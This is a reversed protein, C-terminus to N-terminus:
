EDEDDENDEVYEICEIVPPSILRITNKAGCHDCEVIDGVVDTAIRSPVDDISYVKMFCEDAKSQFRIPKRCNICKVKLIDFCSM